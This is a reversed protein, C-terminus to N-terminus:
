EISAFLKQLRPISFAATRGWNVSHASAFGPFGAGGEIL